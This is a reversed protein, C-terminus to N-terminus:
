RPGGARGTLEALLLQANKGGLAAREVGKEASALLTLPVGQAQWRRTMENSTHVCTPFHVKHQAMLGKVRLLQWEGPPELEPDAAQVVGLFALNSPKTDALAALEALLPKCPACTPTWFNLLLKMGPPVRLLQAPSADSNLVSECQMTPLSKGKLAEVIATEQTASVNEGRVDLVAAESASPGANVPVWHPGIVCRMQQGHVQVVAGVSYSGGESDQCSASAAPKGGTPTRSGQDGRAPPHNWLLVLGVALVRNTLFPKNTM